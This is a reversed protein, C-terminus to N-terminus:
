YLLEQLNHNVGLLVSRFASLPVEEGKTLSFPSPFFDLHEQTLIKYLHM